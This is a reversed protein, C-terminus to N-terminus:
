SSPLDMLLSKIEFLIGEYNTIFYKGRCEFSAESVFQEGCHAGSMKVLFLSKFFVQHTGDNPM